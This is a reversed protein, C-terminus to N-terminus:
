QHHYGHQGHIQQHGHEINHKLHLIQQYKQVQYKMLVIHSLLKHFQIHYHIQYGHYQLVQHFM